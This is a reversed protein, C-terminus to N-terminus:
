QELEKLVKIAHGDESILYKIVQDSAKYIDGWEWEERPKVEEYKTKGRVRSYYKGDCIFEYAGASKMRFKCHSYDQHWEGLEESNFKNELSEGSYWIGDTNWALVIRDHKQLWRTMEEVKRNNVAIADKSLQSYRFDCYPSQMFGITLNLIAKYDKNTKRMKFYKEILPRFEPHSEALGAPYSSNIDLHHVNYYTNNLFLDSFVGIHPKEITMKIEYGTEEDVMYSELDIGNKECDSRFKKFAQSGHVKNEDAEKNGAPRFQIRCHGFEFSLVLIEAGVKSAKIEYGPMQYWLVKPDVCIGKSQTRKFQVQKFGKLARVEDLLANYEDPDRTKYVPILYYNPRLDFSRKLDKLKIM